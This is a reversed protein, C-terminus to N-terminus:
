PRSAPEAPTQAGRSPTRRKRAIASRAQGTVGESHESRVTRRHSSAVARVLAGTEIPSTPIIGTRAREALGTRPRARRAECWRASRSWARTRWPREFCSRRDRPARSRRPSREPKRARLKRLTKKSNGGVPRTRSISPTATPESPCSRPFTIWPGISTPEIRSKAIIQSKKSPSALQHQLKSTKAPGGDAQHSPKGPGYGGAISRCFPRVVSSPIACTPRHAHAAAVRRLLVSGIASGARGQLAFSLRSCTWARSGQSAQRAREGRRRTHRRRHRPARLGDEDALASPRRPQDALRPPRDGGDVGRDAAATFM